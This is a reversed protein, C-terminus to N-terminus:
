VGDDASLRFESLVQRVEKEYTNGSVELFSCVVAYCEVDSMILEARYVRSGEETQSTWVFQYEPMGSKETQLINLEESTFGSLRYVASDLDSALITRLEVELVGDATAYIDWGDMQQLLQMDQPLQVEVAYESDYRSMVAVDGRSDAVTEWTPQSCGVLMLIMVILIVMSQRM